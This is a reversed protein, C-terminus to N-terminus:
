HYPRFTGDKLNLTLHLYNLFKVKSKKTIEWKHEKLLRQLKKKIKEVQTAGKNKFISSTNDKYLGTESINCIESIKELVFTRVLKCVEAGVYAQM